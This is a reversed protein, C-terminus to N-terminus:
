ITSLDPLILGGRPEYISGEDPVGLVLPLWRLLGYREHFVAFNQQAPELDARISKAFESAGIAAGNAFGWPTTLTTHFHGSFIYRVPRRQQAETLMIKKHGKVINAAPGIFGTGGGASMRDGHTLLAPWGVIDFYADFAEPRYHKINPYQKLAAEVFDSVLTDWSQLMALKARPKGFTMRGHNGGSSIVEFEIEFGFHEILELHLRLIGAAIFQAAWKCQEYATGADTEALEPHLGHGSILDGGLLIYVKHPAGDSAPWATTTLISVKEFYRGIRQRAIERNYYNVGMMEKLSVVEGVHLDSLHCVVGQKSPEAKSKRVSPSFPKCIPEVPDLTLGLVGARIDEAAALRKTLDKVQAKLARENTEFRHKEVIDLREPEPATAPAVVTTTPAEALSVSKTVIGAAKLHKRVNDRTIGCAAATASLDKLEAFKAVVAERRKM